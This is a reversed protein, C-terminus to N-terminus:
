VSEAITRGFAARSRAVNFIGLALNISADALIAEADAVEVATGLGARFRADAQSWNAQAAELAKQLAPLADRAVKVAVYAQRIGAVAVFRTQNLEERRVEETARSAGARARVVPDFLPWSFVVGVDWNPVEPLFGSGDATQGSSPAAGGARGSITATLFFDPRAEAGIARTQQEQARVAAIAALIRPDRASAQQIADNLAPLDPPTTSTGLVDLAADPVGVAAAYVAQATELGGRAQIRGADFRALDAEARTLEIPPRMGSGVGSQALDRHAKSRTYADEAAKSIAKAAYVAFCSEVVAYTVDLLANASAQKQVDVLADAAATQAAIRGFEFAEQTLGAGVFTSAYPRWSGGASTPTAGIRPIDMAPVNVYSATSNNATAAYLQATAGVLPEWQARPVRAAEKFAAVRALGLLVAPQHARAYAIADALTM